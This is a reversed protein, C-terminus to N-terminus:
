HHCIRIIPIFARDWHIGHECAAEINGSEDGFTVIVVPLGLNIRDRVRNRMIAALESNIEVISNHLPTASPSSLLGMHEAVQTLSICELTHYRLMNEVDETSASRTGLVTNFIYRSIEGWRFGNYTVARGDIGFMARFSRLRIPRQRFMMIFSTSSSNSVFGIRIRCVM